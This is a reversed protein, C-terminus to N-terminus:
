QYELIHELFCTYPNFIFAVKYSIDMNNKVVM